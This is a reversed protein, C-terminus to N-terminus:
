LFVVLISLTQYPPTWLWLCTSSILSLGSIEALIEMLFCYAGSRADKLPSAADAGLEWVIRNDRTDYLRVLGQKNGGIFYRENKTVWDLSM